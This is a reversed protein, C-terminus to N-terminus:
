LRDEKERVAKTAMGKLSGRLSRINRIPVFELDDNRFLDSLFHADLGSL